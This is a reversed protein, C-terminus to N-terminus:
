HNSDPMGGRHLKALSISLIRREEHTEAKAIAKLLYYREKDHQQNDMEIQRIQRSVAWDQLSQLLSQVLRDVLAGGLYKVAFQLITQM